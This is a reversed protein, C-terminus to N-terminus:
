SLRTGRTKTVYIRGSILSMSEHHIYKMDKDSNCINSIDLKIFSVSDSCLSFNFSSSSLCYSAPVSFPAPDMRQWLLLLTGLCIGVMSSCLSALAAELLMLEEVTDDRLLDTEAPLGLM